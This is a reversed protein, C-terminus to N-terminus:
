PLRQFRAWGRPSRITEGGELKFILSGDSALTLKRITSPSITSPGLSALLFYNSSCGAFLNSNAELPGGLGEPLRFESCLELATHPPTGSPRAPTVFLTWHKTDPGLVARWPSSELRLSVRECSRMASRATITTENPALRNFPLMSTLWVERTKGAREVFMGKNLFTGEIGICEDGAGAIEPWSPPYSADKEVPPIACAALVLFMVWNAVRLSQRLPRQSTM